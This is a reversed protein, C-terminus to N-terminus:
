QFIGRGSMNLSLFVLNGFVYASLSVIMKLFAENFSAKLAIPFLFVLAVNTYVTHAAGSQCGIVFFLSWMLVGSDITKSVRWQELIRPISLLYITMALWNQLLEMPLTLWGDEVFLVQTWPFPGITGRVFNGIISKDQMGRHLSVGDNSQYREAFLQTEEPNLYFAAVLLFFVAYSFLRHRSGAAREFCLYTSIILYIGLVFIYVNRLQFYFLAAMPLIVILRPISLANRQVLVAGVILWFQGIIDRMTMDSYLFMPQLSTLVFAWNAKAESGGYGRVVSSILFGALITHLSAWVSFNLINDGALYYLLAHYAVLWKAKGGLYTDEIHDIGFTDWGASIAVMAEHLQSYDYATPPYGLPNSFYTSDFFYLYHFLPIALKVFLVTLAIVPAHLGLEQKYFFAVSLICVVAAVCTTLYSLLPDEVRGFIALSCFGSLLGVFIKAFISSQGNKLGTAAGTTIVADLCHAGSNDNAVSENLSTFKM